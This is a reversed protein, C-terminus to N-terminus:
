GRPVNQLLGKGTKKGTASRHVAMSGTTADMAGIPTRGLTKLRGRIPKRPKGSENGPAKMTPMGMNM